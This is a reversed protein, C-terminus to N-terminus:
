AGIYNNYITPTNQYFEINGIYAIDAPYTFTILFRYYRYSTSNLFTYINSEIYIQESRTDLVTWSSGNNSGEFTWARLYYGAGAWLKYAGIIVPTNFDIKWWRTGGVSASAWYTSAGNSDLAKWAMYYYQDYETDASVVYPSPANNNTMVPALNSGLVGPIKGIMNRNCINLLEVTNNRYKTADHPIKQLSM